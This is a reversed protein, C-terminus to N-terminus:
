RRARASIKYSAGVQGGRTYVSVHWVGPDPDYIRCTVHRGPGTDRCSFVNRTPDKSRRVFMALRAGPAAYLRVRLSRTHGRVRTKFRRWDGREGATARQKGLTEVPTQKGALSNKASGAFGIFRNLPSGLNWHSDLYEGPEPASDFYDDHNCDFQVSDPCHLLMGDQNRDGGDPSYCLVDFDENCHGGTGTSNPSGYQVAGMLHASEHMPTENDWCPGYIAGYGGGVNSRNDISLSSDNEYSAIGCAGGAEGDVFILYDAQASNFGAARAAAVIEAFSTGPVTLTDVRVQGGDDCLMKYDANPGGSAISSANLVADMRGIASRIHPTEEAARNEAGGVFAYIVQQYFDTACLPQREVAGPSFGTGDSALGTGEPRETAARVDPGHTLLPDGVDPAVRYLGSSTVSAGTGVVRKLPAPAPQTATASPAACALMTAAM